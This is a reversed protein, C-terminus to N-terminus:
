QKKFTWGKYKEKRGALCNYVQTSSLKNIKCFENANKTESVVGEPSIAIFSITGRRNKMQELFELFTCNEKNYHGNVDKRELSPNKIRKQKLAYLYRFYMDEKFALFDVWRPDYKIGRGGYDKYRTNSKNDCRAKMSQWMKYFKMKGKAYETNWFGHKTVKDKQLCGCSKTKGSTLNDCRVEIIKGCSCKCKWFYQSSKGKKGICNLVILRGFKKNKLDKTKRPKKAIEKQFCGCSKTIGKKLSNSVVNITNGCSCVCLWRSKGMYEIATLRGFVEGTLDIFKGM